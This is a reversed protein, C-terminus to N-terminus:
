KRPPAQPTTILSMGRLYFTAWWRMFLRLPQLGGQKVPNVKNAYSTKPYRARIQQLAALAEADKGLRAAKMAQSWLKRAERHQPDGRRFLTNVRVTFGVREKGHRFFGMTLSDLQAQLFLGLELLDRAKKGMKVGRYLRRLEPFRELADGLTVRFSLFADPGTAAASAPDLSATLGAADPGRSVLEKVLAPTGVVLGPKGVEVRLKLDGRYVETDLQLTLDYHGMGNNIVGAAEVKMAGPRLQSAMVTAFLVTASAMSSAVTPDTAGVVLAAQGGEREVLLLEGTAGNRLM